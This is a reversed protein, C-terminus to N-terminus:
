EVAFEEGRFDACIADRCGNWAGLVEDVIGGQEILFVAQRGPQAILPAIGPQRRGFAPRVEILVPIFCFTQIGLNLVFQRVREATGACDDEELRVVEGIKLVTAIDVRGLRDVLDFGIAASVHDTEAKVIRM